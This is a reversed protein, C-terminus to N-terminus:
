GVSHCLTEGDNEKRCSSSPLPSDPAQEKRPGSECPVAVIQLREEMAVLGLRQDSGRLGSIKTLNFGRGDDKITFCIQQVERKASINVPTPNADKGINTLAEQFIRYIITRVPLPFFRDLDPLDVRWIIQPQCAAFEEIINQLATTLGLYELDGPSLDYYLRRVEDIVENIYSLSASIEEKIRDQGPLLKKEISRLSLKFTLLAQGLEDHLEVALRKREQEQATLLQDALYRLKSESEKFEAKARHHLLADMINMALAEVAEQDAPLYGGAKNALMILGITQGHHLLPVGLFATLPAHGRPTGFADPHAAPDNAILSKGQRVVRAILGVPEINKLGQLEPSALIQCLEWARDGFALADLKGHPKLGNIFGFRSTTLEEAVTLCTRGLEEESECTLAERLIRNIGEVIASRRQVELEAQKHETIDEFIDVIGQINGQANHIPALSIRVDIASGDKKQRKLELGTLIEGALVREISEQSEKRTDEPVMRLSQGLVEPPSWGFMLEAAPNWSLVKGQTDLHIIGLPSFEILACLKEHAMRLQENVQELEATREAALPELNQRLKQNQLELEMQRVWLEHILRSAETPSLEGAPTAEAQLDTEAQQRLDSFRPSQNRRDTM